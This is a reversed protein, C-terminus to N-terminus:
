MANRSSYLSMASSMDHTAVNVHRRSVGHLLTKTVHRPSMGLCTKRTVLFTLFFHRWYGGASMDHQSMNRMAQGWLYLILTAQSFFKHLYFFKGMGVHSHYSLSFLSDGSLLAYTYHLLPLYVMFLFM